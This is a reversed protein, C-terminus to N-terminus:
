PILYTCCFYVSGSKAIDTHCTIAGGTAVKFGRMGTNSWSGSVGLVGDQDNKPRYNAPVTVITTNASIAASPSGTVNINVVKGWKVCNVTVGNSTASTTSVATMGTGGQAISVAARTTLINYSKTETLDYAAAPLNFREEYGTNAGESTPSVERFQFYTRGFKSGDVEANQIFIGGSPASMDAGYFVANPTTASNKVCLRDKFYKDGNINENGTNHVVASDLAAGTILEKWTGWTTAGTRFRWFCSSSAYGVQVITTSDSSGKEVDLIYITSSPTNTYTNGSSLFYHGSDTIDNLDTNNPLTGSHVYTNLESIEGDIPKSFVTSAM